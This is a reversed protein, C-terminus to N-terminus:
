PIRLVMGARLDNPSRMIDRNAQYIATVRAQNAGAGYYQRAIAWLSKQSPTVTHNRGSPPTPRQTAPRTPAPSASATGRSSTVSSPIQPPPAARNPQAPAPAPMRVFGSANSGPAPRPAAPMPPPASVVPETLGPSAPAPATPGSSSSEDQLSIVPTPARMMPTSSSGRLTENEAELERIRRRLADIDQGSELSIVDQNTPALLYKAIERKAADRQGMVMKAAPGTPQLMLYRSFHHYAEVPDHAWNLCLAGAELHSEPAGNEGRRDIEKLFANLAENFRGQKAFERGQQYLPDNVEDTMVNNGRCGGLLLAALALSVVIPRRVSM